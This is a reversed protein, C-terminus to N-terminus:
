HVAALVADVFQRIHRDLYDLDDAPKHWFRHNEWQIVAAKVAFGAISTAPTAMIDATLKDILLWADTLARDAARIPEGAAEWHRKLAACYAEADARTWLLQEAPWTAEREAAEEIADYLVDYAAQKTECYARANAMQRGLELLDADVPTNSVGTDAKTSAIVTANVATGGVLTLVVRRSLTNSRNTTM